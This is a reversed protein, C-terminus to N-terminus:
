QKKIDVMRVVFILSNNPPVSGYGDEGYALTSPIMLQVKADKNIVKMGDNWGSIIRDDGLEFTWTSDTESYKSTDFINGNIFYGSYTVTLTDGFEPYDGTGEEMTVYYVGLATTDVDHGESELGTIYQHLKAAEDALSQSPEESDLCSSLFMSFVIGIWVSMLMKSKM